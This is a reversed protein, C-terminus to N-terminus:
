ADSFSLTTDRNSINIAIYRYKQPLGNIMYTVLNAEHMPSDMHELRDVLSKIKNCYDSISSNGLSNNRLDCDIQTVNSAKNDRFVKELTTWMDYTTSQKKFIMNLLSTSLMGYIWAKVISYKQLWTAKAVKSEATGKDKEKDTKLTPM